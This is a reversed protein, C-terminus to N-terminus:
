PLRKRCAYWSPLKFRNDHWFYFLDYGADAESAAINYADEERMLKDAVDETVFPFAEAM